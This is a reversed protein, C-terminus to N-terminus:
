ASRGQRATPKGGANPTMGRIAMWEHLAEIENGTHPWATSFDNYNRMPFQERTLAAVLEPNIIPPYPKMLEHEITM